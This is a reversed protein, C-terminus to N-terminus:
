WYFTIRRQIVISSSTNAYLQLSPCSYIREFRPNSACSSYVGIYTCMNMSTCAYVYGQHCRQHIVDYYHVYIYMYVITFGYMLPALMHINICIYRFRLNTYIYIIIYGATLHTYISVQTCISVQLKFESRNCISSWMVTVSHETSINYFASM